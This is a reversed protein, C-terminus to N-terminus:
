PSWIRCGDKVWQEAEAISAFRMPVNDADRMLKGRKMVGGSTQSYYSADEYVRYFKGFRAAVKYDGIPEVNDDDKVRMSIM